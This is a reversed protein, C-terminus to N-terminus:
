REMRDRERAKQCVCVSVYKKTKYKKFIFYNYQSYKKYSCKGTTYIRHISYNLDTIRLRSHNQGDKGVGM